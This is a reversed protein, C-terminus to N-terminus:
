KQKVLSWLKTKNDFTIEPAEGNKLNDLATEFIWMGDRYANTYKKLERTKEPGKSLARIIKQEMKAVNSLADIPDLEERVGLQWDSIKVVKEIIDKDITEKGENIALLPMLRLAYTDLRKTHVSRELNMYWADFLERADNTVDIIVGHNIKLFLDAVKKALAKKADEPVGRPISHKREGRGPVLFVRNVFGIDLFAATWMNEYTKVTSAALLALHANKVDINTKKTRSEYENDEFLTNVCPLLVSAEIKCKGIFAKFEDLVLLLRGDEYDTLKAQLGEASGVGRCTRLTDKFQSKFFDVAMKIATSKREDASEGLLLTYLRPQPKIESEFILKESLISGLCTLFSFYLFEKPPEIYQSYLDAFEKALGGMAEKPFPFYGNEREERPADVYKKAQKVCKEVDKNTFRDGPLQETERNLDLCLTLVESYSLGRQFYDRAIRFMGHDRKGKPLGKKKLEEVDVKHSPGAEQIINPLSAFDKDWPAWKNLWQYQSESPHISPPAVVYGGDSRIDTDPMGRLRVANKIGPRYRFYAQCKEKSTKVLPTVIMNFKRANEIAAGSDLDVVIIGSIQGTVIAINYEGSGFWNVLEVETPRRSQFEKWSNVAPLKSKPKLPIVSFGLEFVYYRAWDLKSKFDKM